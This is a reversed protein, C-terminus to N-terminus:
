PSAPPAAHLDPLSVKDISPPVGNSNTITVTNAGQGANLDAVTVAINTAFNTENTGGASSTPPFTLKSAPGGNVSVYGTRDSSDPNIYSIKLTYPGPAPGTIGGIQLSGPNSSTDAPHLDMADISVVAATLAANKQGTVVIEITHQGDTLTTTAFLVQQFVKGGSAYTDVSAVKAGDISVGAIGGNTNKPGIWRVVTGTFSMTMSAGSIGSYSETREYDGATWSQAAAHQWSGAYGLAPNTDDYTYAIPAAGLDVAMGSSCSSCAMLATGGALKNGAAEAEYDVDATQAASTGSGVDVTWARQWGLSASGGAITLPLWVLPSDHLQNQYWRDGMYVYTTGAAGTVPLVFNTQSDFTDAGAPAFPKWAAWPGALSRATTYVNDNTAWGSLHSAFLYYLGDVKVMAPAEYDDLITVPGAVSLFDPSLLDIRLGNNRDESLLYAKGDDDKFIGIDRSLQALPQSSGLYDYPGIPNSSVAVGARAEKYGPADIHMWMVYQGTSDNHIVKPREVIRGSSLDGSSQPSLSNQERQWSVLDTSTYCAVATFTVGASKDEGYGYYTDGVKLVSGGHLQVLNGNQDNWAAGPVIVRAGPQAASRRWRMMTSAGASVPDVGAAIVAGASSALLGRLVARRSLASDGNRSDGM